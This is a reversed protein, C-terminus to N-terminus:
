GRKNQSNQQLHINHSKGITTLVTLSYLFARAFTWDYEPVYTQAVSVAGIAPVGGDQLQNSMDDTLRRILQDQFRAIEMAALRHLCNFQILVYESRNHELKSTINVTDLERQLSYEIFGHNGM